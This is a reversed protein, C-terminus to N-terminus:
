DDSQLPNLEHLKLFNLVTLTPCTLLQHIMGIGFHMWYETGQMYSNTMLIGQTPTPCTLHTLSYHIM